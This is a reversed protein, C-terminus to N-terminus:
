SILYKPIKGDTAIWISGASDAAVACGTLTGGSNAPLVECEDPRVYPGRDMAMALFFGGRARFLAAAM